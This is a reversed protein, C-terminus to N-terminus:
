EYIEKILEKHLVKVGKYKNIILDLKEENATTLELQNNHLTEVEVGYKWAEVMIAGATQRSGADLTVIAM